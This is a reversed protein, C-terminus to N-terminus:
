QLKGPHNSDRNDFHNLKTKHKNTISQILRLEM